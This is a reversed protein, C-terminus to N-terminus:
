WLPQYKIPFMHFRQNQQKLIAEEEVEEGKDKGRGLVDQLSGM